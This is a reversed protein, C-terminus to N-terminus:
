PQNTDAPAEDVPGQEGWFGEYKTLTLDGLVRAQCALRLPTARHHPPFGLRWREVRTKPTVRGEIQVACTGCTGLGRCNVFRAGGNHPTLQSRLLVDRVREGGECEVVQGRFALTPMGGDYRARVRLSGAFAPSSHFVDLRNLFRYNSGRSTLGISGAM